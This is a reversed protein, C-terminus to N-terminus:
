VLLVCIYVNPSVNPSVPDIDSDEGGYRKGSSPIWLDTVGVSSDEEIVLNEATMSRFSKGLVGKHPLTVRLLVGMCKKKKM